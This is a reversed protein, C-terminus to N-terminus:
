RGNSSNKISRINKRLPNKELKFNVLSVITRVIMSLYQREDEDYRKNGRYRTGLIDFEKIRRQANEVISRISSLDRNRQKEEPKM